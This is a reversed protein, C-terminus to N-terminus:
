VSLAAYFDKGYGAILAAKDQGNIIRRAGKWDETTKNFYNILSKNTFDGVLSKGTTMGEFMIKVAVDMQLALNPNEALPIGLIKGMKTFNYRGTIQVLGKGSYDIADQASRNGLEKAKKQNTWYMKIFYSNGGYEKIPQMTAASEHWSTALIYGLWRLDTFGSAEWANFIAEFGNVQKQSLPGYKPRIASYFSPRNIM